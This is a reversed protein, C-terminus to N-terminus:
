QAPDISYPDGYISHYRANSPLRRCRRRCCKTCTLSGPLLICHERRIVSSDSSSNIWSFDVPDIM